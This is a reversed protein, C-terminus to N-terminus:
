LLYKRSETVEEIVEITFGNHIKGLTDMNNFIVYSNHMDNYKRASDATINPQILSDALLEEISNYLRNYTM